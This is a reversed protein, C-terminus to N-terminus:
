RILIVWVTPPFTIVGAGVFVVLRLVRPMDFGFVLGAAGAWAGVVVAAVAGRWRWATAKAEPEQSSPVCQDLMWFVKRMVAACVVFFVGAVMTKIVVDFRGHDLNM